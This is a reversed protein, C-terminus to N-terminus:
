QQRSTRVTRGLLHVVALVLDQVELPVIPVQEAGALLEADDRSRSIESRPTMLDDYSDFKTGEGLISSKRVM